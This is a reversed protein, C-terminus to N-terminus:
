ESHTILDNIHEVLKINHEGNLKSLFVIYNVFPSLKIVPKTEKCSNTQENDIIYFKILFKNAM